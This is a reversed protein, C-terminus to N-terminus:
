KRNLFNLNDYFISMYNKKNILKHIIVSIPIDWNKKIEPGFFDSIKKIILDQM